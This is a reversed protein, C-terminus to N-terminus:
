LPFNPPTKIQRNPPRPFVGGLNFGAVWLYIHMFQVVLKLDLLYFIPLNLARWNKGNFMGGM